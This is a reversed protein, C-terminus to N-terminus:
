GAGHDAGVFRGLKAPSRVLRLPHRDVEVDARTMRRLEVKAAEFPRHWDRKMVVWRRALRHHRDFTAADERDVADLRAETRTLDHRHRFARFVRPFGIRAALKDRDLQVVGRSRLLTEELEGRLIAPRSRMSSFRVDPSGKQKRVVGWWVGSKM